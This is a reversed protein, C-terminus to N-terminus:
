AFVEELQNPGYPDPGYRNPGQTGPLVMFVFWTVVIGMFALVLLIGITFSAATGGGMRYGFFGTLLAVVILGFFILLWWGTRDIDHLRRVTVSLIPLLIAM